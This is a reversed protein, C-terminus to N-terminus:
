VDLLDEDDRSGYNKTCKNYWDLLCKTVHLMALRVVM